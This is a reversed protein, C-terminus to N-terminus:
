KTNESHYKTETASLNLRQASFLFTGLEIVRTAEPARIIVALEMTIRQLHRVLFVPGENIVTVTQFHFLLRQNM